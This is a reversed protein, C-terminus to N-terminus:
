RRVIIIGPIKKRYFAQSPVTYVHVFCLAFVRILRILKFAVLLKFMAVLNMAIISTCILTSIIYKMSEADDYQM